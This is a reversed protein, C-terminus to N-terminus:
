SCSNYASQKEMLYAIRSLAIENQLVYVNRKDGFSINTKRTQLKNLSYGGALRCLPRLKLGQLTFFKRTEMGELGVRPGV